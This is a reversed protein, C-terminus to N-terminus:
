NIIQFVFFHNKKFVVDRPHPTLDNSLRPAALIRVYLLHLQGVRPASFFYIRCHGAYTSCFPGVNLTIEIFKRDVCQCQRTLEEIYPFLSYIQLNRQNWNVACARSSPHLNEGGTPKGEGSRSKLKM